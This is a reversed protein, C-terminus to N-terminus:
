QGNKREKWYGPLRRGHAVAVIVVSNKEATYVVSFPFRRLLFRRSGAIYSPWRRPAEQIKQVARDIEALFAKAASKNREYYWLYAGRAEELAYPHFEINTRSKL